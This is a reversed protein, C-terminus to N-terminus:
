PLIPELIGAPLRVGLFETFGLYVVLGLVAGVIVDRVPQRSGLTRASIPVFVATAVVYGLAGLAFAYGILAATTAGTTPWHTRAAEHLVHRALDLDPRVSSRIFFLSGLGVLAVGVVAPMVAPGVAVYTAIARAQTADVLAVVGLGIVALAALRPGLLGHSATGIPRSM